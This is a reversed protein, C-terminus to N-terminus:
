LAHETREIVEQQKAPTLRTFYDSYGGIRVVLDQYLEPNKQAKLLTDRDVVNVQLEFGGRKMFARVLSELKSISGERFLQKGFKMNVAIGGIFPDHAWKTASLVSATPGRRERGQAPGSGDGLTFGAVRGDPTAMTQSGFEDHMIWCFMSPIFRGGRFSHFGELSATLWTVLECVLGDVEDDDNGYKVLRNLIRGHLLEHGQFNDELAQALQEMTLSREEFVLKKLTFLADALNAMGVFSPMIWNYRAGGREIDVGRAICDNVFCSVLPDADFHTREAQMRNQEIVAQRVHRQLAERFAQTLADFSPFARPQSGEPCIGLTDLLLQPLNVYPSAVWCASSCCPTIEVCTSHIYECAESYPLGYRTLGRIIVDDNFLAPHSHGQGLIECSLSLLEPPTDENVCLGIGPYIMGTHPISKLFLATLENSADRGHADRGGVMLGVALGRDIYENYLVCLCDILEQAQEDSMRGARRDRLYYAYLYRDPRGLQYLGVMAVSLLHCAQLAERFSSAPHRPVARCVRAIELLEERRQPAATEAQREAERAYSESFAVLGELACLCSRYFDFQEMQRPESEDLLRMRQRIDEALGECGLRLLKEYDVAMHSAQGELRPQAPLAYAELLRYEQAEEESLPRSCRKGVILEDEDIVPRVRSLQYRKAMGHRVQSSLEERGSELFGKLLLYRWEPSATQCTLAHARLRAIRAPAHEM